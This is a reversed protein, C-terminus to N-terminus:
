PLVLSRVHFVANPSVVPFPVILQTIMSIAISCHQSITGRIRCVDQAESEYFDPRAVDYPAGGHLQTASRGAPRARPDALVIPLGHGTFPLARLLHASQQM